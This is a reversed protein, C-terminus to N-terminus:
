YVQGKIDVKKYKKAGESLGTLAARTDLFDTIDSKIVNAKQETLFKILDEKLEFGLEKQIFGLSIGTRYAKCLILLSQVREREIFQDMLYAGMNPATNYLYFFRHYNSTALSSRVQLAHQVFANEKQEATLDAMTSNIDAANQTHLFYLIRYATFEMVNGPIGGAYLGKLQTQCQNYEGLDSKELAIRAHIEYVQVTFENKIRQVTLDQRMSKFQDCIYTYNQENKWKEKLLGLTQKLVHLPRVTTPDPASTLRLYQKELKTSTGIVADSVVLGDLQIQQMSASMNEAKFQAADEEFRRLRKIKKAEEENGPQPMVNAKKKNIKKKKKSPLCASPLDVESWDTTLLTGAKHSELILQRLQLEAEDRKGPLCSTFVDQVYQKLSPPWSEAPSIEVATAKEKPIPEKPTDVEQQQQKKSQNEQLQQVSPPQSSVSNPIQPAEVPKKSWPPVKYGPKGTVVSTSNVVPPPPPPRAAMQQYPQLPQNYQYQQYHPQTYYSPQQMPVNTPAISNPNNQYYYSSSQPYGYSSALSQNVGPPGETGPPPNYQYYM